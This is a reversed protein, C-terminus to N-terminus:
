WMEGEREDEGEGEMREIEREFHGSDVTDVCITDVCVADSGM